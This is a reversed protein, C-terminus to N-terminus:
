SDLKFIGWQWAVKPTNRLYRGGGGEETSFYLQQAKGSAKVKEM